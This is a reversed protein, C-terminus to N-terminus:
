VHRTAIANGRRGVEWRVLVAICTLIYLGYFVVGLKLVPRPIEIYVPGAVAAEFAAKAPAPSPAAATRGGSRERFDALFEEVLARQGTRAFADCQRGACTYQQCQRWTTAITVGNAQSPVSVVQSLSLCQHVALSRGGGDPAVPVCDLGSALAATHVRSVTIGAERLQAEAEQQFPSTSFITGCGPGIQSAVSVHAEQAIVPAGGAM